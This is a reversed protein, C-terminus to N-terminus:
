NTAMDAVAEVVDDPDSNTVVAPESQPQPKQQPKQQKRQRQLEASQSRTVVMPDAFPSPVSTPVAGGNISKLMRPDPMSRARGDVRVGM